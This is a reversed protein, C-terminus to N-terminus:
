LPDLEHNPPLVSDDNRINLFMVEFPVSKTGPDLPTGNVEWTGGSPKIDTLVALSETKEKIRDGNYYIRLVKKGNKKFVLTQDFEDRPVNLLTADPTDSNFAKSKVEGVSAPAYEPKELYHDIEPQTAPRTRVNFAIQAASAPFNKVEFSLNVWKNTDGNGEQVGVVTLRSDAFKITINGPKSGPSGARLQGKFKENAFLLLGLVVVVVALYGGWVILKKQEVKKKKKTM